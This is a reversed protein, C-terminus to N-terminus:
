YTGNEIVGLTENIMDQVTDRRVIAERYHYIEGNELIGIIKIFDADVRCFGVQNALGIHQITTPDPHVISLDYVESDCLCKVEMGADIWARIDAYSADPTYSWDDSVEDWEKV